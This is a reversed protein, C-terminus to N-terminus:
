KTVQKILQWCFPDILGGGDPHPDHAIEGKHWVCFHNFRGNYRPSIGGVIFYREDSVEPAQYYKVIELNYYHLWHTLHVRWNSEHYRTEFRPIANLPFELVSALCALFCSGYQVIHQNEDLVGFKDQFVPIM